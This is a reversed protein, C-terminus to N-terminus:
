QIKVMPIAKTKKDPNSQAAKQTEKLPGFLTDLKKEIAGEENADFGVQKVLIKGEPSILYATPVATVAFGRSAIDKTDLSQPWPNSEEKVAKLWAPKSEDISISYIEFGKSKYQNYIKRMKPFSKRCPVCWSAWFDLMVYKGKFRSFNLPKDQPDPLTFSHVTKGIASNKVGQIYHYFKMGEESHKMEKSLMGYWEELKDLSPLNRGTEALVYASAYSDPHAKVLKEVLPALYTMQLSDRSKQYSIYRPDKENIQFWNTGYLNRLAKNMSSYATDQEKQFTRYLVTAEPGKVKSAYMGKTIDSIVYYTGPGTILIGFPRYMLREERVYGPQFFKLGINKFPFTFTYHGDKIIASDNTTRTYLYMKNHGKLDGNLTGKIVVMSEKGSTCSMILLAVGMVSFIIKKM